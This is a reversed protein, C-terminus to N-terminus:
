AIAACVDTTRGSARRLTFVGAATADYEVRGVYLTTSPGAPVDTPFLILVNHGTSVVTSSGDPHFTTRTVSGNSRLSLTAGRAQNTFTLNSGTGASITRVVNGAADRFEHVQQNGGSIDVGVGFDACATGAPLDLDAAAASAATSGVLLAAAAAASGLVRLGSM